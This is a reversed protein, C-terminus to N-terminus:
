QSEVEAFHALTASVSFPVPNMGTECFPPDDAVNVPSEVYPCSVAMVTVLMVDVCSFAVMGPVSRHALPVAPILTSFGGLAIQRNFQGSSPPPSVFLGGLPCGTVVCINVMVFEEGTL